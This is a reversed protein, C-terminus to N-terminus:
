IFVALLGLGGAELAKGLAWSFFARSLKQGAESSAKQLKADLTVVRTEDYYGHRHLLQLLHAADIRDADYRIVMSGTVANITLESIGPIDLIGRIEDTLRANKRIEPIRVRLRGPVHHVYYSM